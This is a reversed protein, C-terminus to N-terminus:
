KGAMMKLMRKYLVDRPAGAGHPAPPLAAAPPPEAREAPPPATRSRLNGRKKQGKSTSPKKVSKDQKTARAPNTANANPNTKPKRTTRKRETLTYFGGKTEREIVFESNSYNKWKQDGFDLVVNKGGEGHSLVVDRAAGPLGTVNDVKFTAEPHQKVDVFVKYAYQGDTKPIKARFMAHHGTKDKMFRISKRSDITDHFLHRTGKIHLYKQPRPEDWKIKNILEFIQDDRAVPDTELKKFLTGSKLYPEFNSFAEISNKKTGMWNFSKFQDDTFLVGKPEAKVDYVVFHTAKSLSLFNGATSEEHQHFEGGFVKYM